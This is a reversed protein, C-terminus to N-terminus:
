ESDFLEELDAKFQAFNKYLITQMGVGRAGECYEERDDTFVCEDLRLGLREAVIEYAEAEPKAYGVEGSIVVIDFNALEEGTFRKQLSTTSSINTLMGTKYTSHLEEVYKLLQQDKHEGGAIQARYEAVSLGLARAARQSSTESDILGRNAARITDKIEEFAAPNNTRLEACMAELADTVLVGFCDFIIAKIM